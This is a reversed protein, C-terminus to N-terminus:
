GCVLCKLNRRSGLGGVFAGVVITGGDAAERTAIGFKESTRLPQYQELASSVRNNPIIGLIHRSEHPEAGASTLPSQSDTGGRQGPV